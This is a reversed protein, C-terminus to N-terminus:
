GLVRQGNVERRTLAPAIRPFSVAVQLLDDRAQDAMHIHIFALREIVTESDTGGVEVRVHFRIEQDRESHYRAAVEVPLTHCPWMVILALHNAIPLRLIRTLPRSAYSM